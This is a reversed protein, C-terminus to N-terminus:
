LESLQTRLAKKNDLKEKTEASIDNDTIMEKELMLNWLDEAGRPMDNDSEMLQGLLIIKQRHAAVDNEIIHNYETEDIFEITYSKDEPKNYNVADGTKWKGCAVRDPYIKKFHKTENM